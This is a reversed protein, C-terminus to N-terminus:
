IDCIYITWWSICIIGLELYKSFQINMYKMYCIYSFPYKKPWKIVIIDWVALHDNPWPRMYWRLHTWKCVITTVYKNFQLAQNKKLSGCNYFLM